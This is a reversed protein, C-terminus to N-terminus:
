IDVVRADNPAPLVPVEPQAPAELAAGVLRDRNKFCFKVFQEEVVWLRLQGPLVLYVAKFIREMTADNEAFSQIASGATEVFTDKVVAWYSEVRADVQDWAKAGLETASGAVGGGVAVAGTAAGQAVNKIGEGARRAGQGAVAGAAKLGSGAKNLATGAGEATARGATKAVEGIDGALDKAKEAASGATSKAREVADGALDKTRDLAEAAAARIKKWM